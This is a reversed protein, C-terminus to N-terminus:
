NALANEPALTEAPMHGQGAGLDFIEQQGAEFVMLAMLLFTHNQARDLHGTVVSRVVDPSFIGRDLFRSDLLLKQVVPRLEVRLWKGLREYPQYGPVGLKALVKMRLKAMWRATSGAQMRAGTNANVVNLFAPMHRRLIHSQIRDGMKLLPPAALLADIVDNDLYPLRTEVISGFKVMSMATERRSRQALFLHWIRQLPEWGLSEKLCEQLSTRALGEIENRYRPAFLKDRTERSMHCGLQRLLWAQLDEDGKLSLAEQDVSFNYAKDMHMLEGAHGRMLVQIGL